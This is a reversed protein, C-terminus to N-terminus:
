GQVVTVSNINQGDYKKGNLTGKVTLPEIKQPDAYRIISKKNALNIRVKVPKPRDIGFSLNDETDKAKVVGLEKDIGKYDDAKARWAYKTGALKIYFVATKSDKAM